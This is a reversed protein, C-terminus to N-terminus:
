ESNDSPGRNRGVIVIRVARKRALQDCTAVGRLGVLQTRERERLERRALLSIEALQRPLNALIPQLKGAFQSFLGIRVGFRRTSM